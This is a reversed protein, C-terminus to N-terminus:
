RTFDATREFCGRAPLRAFMVERLLATRFRIRERYLEGATTHDMLRRESMRAQESAVDRSIDRCGDM